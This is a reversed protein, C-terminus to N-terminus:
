DSTNSFRERRRNVPIGKIPLTIAISGSQDRTSGDSRCYHDFIANQYDSSSATIGVNHAAQEVMAQCVADPQAVQGFLSGALLLLFLARM